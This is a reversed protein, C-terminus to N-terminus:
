SIFATGPMKQWSVALKHFCYRADISILGTLVERFQQGLYVKSGGVLQGEVVGGYVTRGTSDQEDPYRWVYDVFSDTEDWGQVALLPPNYKNKLFHMAAGLDPADQIFTDGGYVALWRGPGHLDELPALAKDLAVKVGEMDKYQLKAGNGVFLYTALISHRSIIDLLEPFSKIISM